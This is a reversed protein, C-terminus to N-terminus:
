LMMVPSLSVMKLRMPLSMARVTSWFAQAAAMLLKMGRSWEKGKLNDCAVWLLVGISLGCFMHLLGSAVAFEGATLFKNWM